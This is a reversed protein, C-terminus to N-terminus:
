IGGCDSSEKSQFFAVCFLSEIEAPDFKGRLWPHGPNVPSLIVFDSERGQSIHVTGAQWRKEEGIERVSENYLQTAQKKFPTSLLISSSDYKQLIHSGVNVATNWVLIPDQVNAKM